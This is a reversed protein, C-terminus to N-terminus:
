PHAGPVNAGFFASIRVGEIQEVAKEQLVERAYGTFHGSSVGPCGQATVKGGVIMQIDRPADIDALVNRHHLFQQGRVFEWGTAPRAFSLMRQHEALLYGDVAHPFVTTRNPCKETLPGGPVPFDVRSRSRTAAM